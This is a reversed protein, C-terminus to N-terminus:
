FEVVVKADEELRVSDAFRILRERFSMIVSSTRLGGGFFRVGRMLSGDTVGTAVFLFEPGPALDEETYVRKPDTIGMKRMRDEQGPKTPVLRARMGGNLCRLAAAALVGEPAGGIGMVAHVNTGRVAASIGASLDGDGILKIRAGAARIDSVLKDHRERDLVIVVLDDVDRGLSKAIAKLNTAVPADLDIVDRASPGVIIKEMYCDPAHLLGGKNSAALVAIAGPAGTACLNTGELPDVAIDVALDGDGWRGVHEGIFLMPAEDREGEGIVVTGRMPLPDMAKRMAEVAVHDSHKRKGQGMTRAAEVAALECVRLFDRSLSELSV